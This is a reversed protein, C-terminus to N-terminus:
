IYFIMSVYDVVSDSPYVEGSHGKALVEAKVKKELGNSYYLLTMIPGYGCVSINNSIITKYLGEPDFSIIKDIAKQDLKEGTEPQVFHSFDSSALICPKKGTSEAAKIIKTALEKSSEPHQWCMGVPVIKKDEFNYYQIFPLLVEASHEWKHIEETAPIDMENIFDIDLPLKGLPTSWYNNTDTAYDPMGGRHVPHLILFIDFQNRQNILAEFFHVVQYGSCIHGAHPLVAGIISKGMTNFNLKALERARIKEILDYIEHQSGPYFKGAVYAKRVETM